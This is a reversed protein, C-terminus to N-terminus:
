LELIILVNSTYGSAANVEQYKGKVVLVWAQCKGLVVMKLSPYMYVETSIHSEWGKIQLSSQHWGIKDEYSGM